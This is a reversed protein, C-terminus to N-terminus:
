AEGNSAAEAHLLDQYLREWQSVVTGLDFKQVAHERAAASMATREAAPLGSLRAMAAALSEPDGPAPAVYGTREQVIADAVGGVGVAVQPLGSSAAELLAMPLGEVASSMVFGDCANMLAPIDDRPGLFRAKLWLKTSLEHLSPADPGDGAILLTCGPLQAAAQLMLPYNKKWMLRGAALWAFEDALGLAARTEARRAADPRFIATDVGNPIVRVRRGSVAGASVHREAVAQSVCIVSDSLRDTMGYLWDRGRVRRSRRNSEALSHITSIVVPVPCILRVMRAAMNAHFLHAHVIQPKLRNLLPALSGLRLPKGAMDLSWVPVGSACLEEEFASPKLLSVVHVDWGRARLRGALQAVQMEAGGRALNTTLLLVRTM